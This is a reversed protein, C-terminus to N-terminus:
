CGASPACRALLRVIITNRKTCIEKSQMHLVWFNVGINGIGLKISNPYQCKTNSSLFMPSQQCHRHIIITIIFSFNGKGPWHNACHWWLWGSIWNDTKGTWNSAKIETVWNSSVFATQMIQVPKSLKPAIFWGSIYNYFAYVRFNSKWCILFWFFSFSCSM